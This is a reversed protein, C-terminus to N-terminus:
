RWLRVPVTGLLWPSRSVYTLRCMFSGTSLASLSELRDAIGDAVLQKIRSARVILVNQFFELDDPGEHVVFEPWARNM